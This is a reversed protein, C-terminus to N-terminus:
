RCINRESFEEIKKALAEVSLRGRGIFEFLESEQKQVHEAMAPLRSLVQPPVSLVGNVDGHLIDGPQIALGGIEVPGGFDVIHAYAHSVSLGASFMQFGLSGVGGFDRVSGDTLVAVCGLAKCIRAHIEGFLAGFGPRDDMDQLVVFRPAPITMLYQWWEAHDFYCRGAMPPMYTQIRGTVAYGAVPPLNPFRCAIAGAVLGENRPRVQFKEIANAIVCTDFRCIAGLDGVPHSHNPNSHM